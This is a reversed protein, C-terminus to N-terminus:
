HLATMLLIELIAHLSCSPVNPNLAQQVKPYHMTRYEKMETPYYTLRIMKFQKKPSDIIVNYKTNCLELCEIHVELLEVELINISMDEDRYQFSYFELLHGIPVVSHKM